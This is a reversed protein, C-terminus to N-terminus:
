QGDPLEYPTTPINAYSNDDFPSDPVRCVAEKVDAAIARTSGSVHMYKYYSETSNPFEVPTVSIAKSELTKLLCETLIDGGIALKVIAQWGGSAPKHPKWFCDIVLSTVGGSAFSTLVVCDFSMPQYQMKALFVAPAGYKEFILEVMKEWNQQTNFSPEALLMPHEKPDVLLQDRNLIETMLSDNLMWSELLKSCPGLHELCNGLRGGTWRENSAGGTYLKRGANVKESEGPKKAEMDTETGGDGVVSTQEVMLLKQLGSSKKGSCM